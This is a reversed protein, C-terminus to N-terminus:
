EDSRTSPGAAGSACAPRFHRLGQEDVAYPPDCSLQSTAELCEPRLHKIGVGDLYYPLLCDTASSRASALARPVVARRAADRALEADIRRIKDELERARRQLEVLQRRLDAREVGLRPAAAANGALGLAVGFAVVVV